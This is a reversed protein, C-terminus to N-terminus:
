SDFTGACFDNDPVHHLFRGFVMECDQKYKKTDLIHEHWFLDIEPSVTWTGGSFFFGRYQAELSDADLHPYKKRVRATILTLDMM